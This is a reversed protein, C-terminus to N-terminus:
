FSQPAMGGFPAAVIRFPLQVIDGVARLPAGILIFPNQAPNGSAPFVNGLFRFPLEVASSAFGLPGTVIMGPGAVQYPAPAEVIAPALPVNRRRVTLPRMRQAKAASKLMPGDASQASAALDSGLLVALAVSAAVAAKNMTVMIM